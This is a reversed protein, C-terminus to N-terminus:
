FSLSSFQVPVTNTSLCAWNEGLRKNTGPQKNAPPTRLLLRSPWCSGRPHLFSPYKLHLGKYNHDRAQPVGWELSLLPTCWEFSHHEKYHVVNKLWDSDLSEPNVLEFSYNISRKKQCLEFSYNISRKKQCLSYIVISYMHWKPFMDWRSRTCM